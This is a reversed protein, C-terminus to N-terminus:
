LFVLSFRDWGGIVSTFEDRRATSDHLSYFGGILISKLGWNTAIAGAQFAGHVIHLNCTVIDTLQCSSSEERQKQLVKLFKVNVNPGDMPVQAM